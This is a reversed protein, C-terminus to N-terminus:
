YKRGINIHMGISFMVPQYDIFEGNGPISLGMQTSFKVYKFGTKVTIVPEFFMTSKKISEQKVMVYCVRPTLALDFFNTTLGVSPQIFIRNSTVDSYSTWIENPSFEARLSGFGYGGFVEVVGYEGIKDYIGAGFEVFSHKHYDGTTDTRDAFSGNVMLGIRDTLAFALQPDVGSTGTYVSAQFEGKNRLLPTNVVNPVYMPACSSLLLIAIIWLKIYHQQM